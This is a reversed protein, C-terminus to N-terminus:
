ALKCISSVNWFSFMLYSVIFCIRNKYTPSDCMTFPWLFSHNISLDQWSKLWYQTDCGLPSSSTLSAFLPHRINDWYNVHLGKFHLLLFSLLLCESILILNKFDTDFKNFKTYTFQAHYSGNMKSLIKFKLFLINNTFILNITDCCKGFTNKRFTFYNLVMHM